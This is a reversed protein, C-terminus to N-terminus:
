SGTLILARNQRKSLLSPFLTVILLASLVASRRHQWEGPLPLLSNDIGQTIDCHAGLVSSSAQLAPLLLLPQVPTWQCALSWQHPQGDRRLWTLHTDTANLRMMMKLPVEKRTNRENLHEVIPECWLRQRESSEKRNPNINHMHNFKFFLM